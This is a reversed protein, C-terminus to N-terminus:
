LSFLWRVLHFFLKVYSNIIFFLNQIQLEDPILQECIPWYHLFKCYMYSSNKAPIKADVDAIVINWSWKIKVLRFMKMLRGKQIGWGVSIVTFHHLYM